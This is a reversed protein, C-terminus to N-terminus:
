GCDDDDVSDDQMSDEDAWFDDIDEFGEADKRVDGRVV